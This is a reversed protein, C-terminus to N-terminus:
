KAAQDEMVGKWDTKRVISIAEFLGDMELELRRLGKRGERTMTYVKRPPGETTSVIEHVILGHSELNKLIPYLTVAQIHIGEDTLRSVANAIFYGHVPAKASDIVHLVIVSFLGGRMKTETSRCFGDVTLKEEGEQVDDTKLRSRTSKM